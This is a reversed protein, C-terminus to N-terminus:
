ITARRLPVRRLVRPFVPKSGAGRVRHGSISRGGRGSVAARVAGLLEIAGHAERFDFGREGSSVSGVDRLFRDPEGCDQEPREKRVSCIRAPQEFNSGALRGSIGRIESASQGQDAGSGRAREGRFEECRCQDAAPELRVARRGLNATSSGAGSRREQLAGPVSKSMFLDVFRRLRSRPRRREERKQEFGAAARAFEGGDQARLVGATGQLLGRWSGRWACLASVIRM